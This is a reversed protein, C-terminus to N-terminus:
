GIEFGNFGLVAYNTIKVGCSVQATYRCIEFDPDAYKKYYEYSDFVSHYVGHKGDSNIDMSSVGLYQLFATYDSGSGLSPYLPIGDVGTMSQLWLDFLTQGGQQTVYVRRSEERAVQALNPSTAVYFTDKGTFLDTNLYAITERSISESYRECHETSGILGFEEADWYAIIMTRAPRWGEKVLKGLVRSLEMMSATGSHPDCGGYIWADYHNGIMVNRDPEVTGRITTIINYIPRIKNDMQVTMKVRSTGSIKYVTSIGGKWNEPVLPGDMSDLLYKANRYSLPQVIIKQAINKSQEVPIRQASFEPISAFGPTQPDGPSIQLYQVSGRQVADEPRWPGNPFVDGKTSGDDAPDSYIIIGCAGHQEALM